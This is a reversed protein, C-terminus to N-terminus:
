SQYTVLRDSTNTVMVDIIELFIRMYISKKDEGEMPEMRNRIVAHQFLANATRDRSLDTFHLYREEVDGNKLGYRLVSSVQAKM